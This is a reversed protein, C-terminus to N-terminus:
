YKPAEFEKVRNLSLKGNIPKSGSLWSPTEGQFTLRVSNARKKVLPVTITFNDDTSSELQVQADVDRGVGRGTMEDYAFPKRENVANSDAGEFLQMQKKLNKDLIRRSEQEESKTSNKDFIYFSQFWSARPNVIFFLAQFDFMSGSTDLDVLIHQAGVKM